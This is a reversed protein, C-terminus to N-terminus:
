AHKRKPTKYPYSIGITEYHKKKIAEILTAPYMGLLALPVENHFLDLYVDPEEIGADIYDLHQDLFNHLKTEWNACYWNFLPENVDLLRSPILNKKAYTVCWISFEQSQYNVVDLKTVGLLKAIKM